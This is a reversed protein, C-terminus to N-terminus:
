DNGFEMLLLADDATSTIKDWLMDATWDELDETAHDLLFEDLKAESWDPWDDPLYEFLFNGSMMGIARNRKANPYIDNGRREHKVFKGNSDLAPIKTRISM